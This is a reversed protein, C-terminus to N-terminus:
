GGDMLAQAQGLHSAILERLTQIETRIVDNAVCPLLEGDITALAADDDAVQFSVYATDFGSGLLATLTACQTATANQVQASAQSNAAGISVTSATQMLAADASTTDSIVAGAFAVVNTGAGLELALQAEQMQGQNIMHLVGVIQKDNM